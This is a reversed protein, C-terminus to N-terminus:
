ASESSPNARGWHRADCTFTPALFGVLKQPDDQEIDFVLLCDKSDFFDRVRSHHTDWEHSWYESAEKPSFGFQMRMMKLLFGNAHLARSRLWAAKDRTNLIFFSGPYQAYLEKFYQNGFLCIEPAEFDTFCDYKDMGSLLPQGATHNLYLKRAIKGRAWHVSTLGNALFFRHLSTTGCKNFGIQFIKPNSSM